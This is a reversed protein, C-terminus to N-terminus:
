AAAGGDDLPSSGRRWRQVTRRDVGPPPRGDPNGFLPHRWWPAHRRRTTSSKRRVSVRCTRLVTTARSSARSVAAFLRIRFGTCRDRYSGVDVIVGADRLRRILRLCRHEGVRHGLRLAVRRVTEGTLPAPEWPRGTVVRRRADLLHQLVSLAFRGEDDDLAAREAATLNLIWAQGPRVAALVQELRIPPLQRTGKV